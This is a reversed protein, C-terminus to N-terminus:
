IQLSFFSAQMGSTNVQEVIEEKKAHGNPM